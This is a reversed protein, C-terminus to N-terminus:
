RVLGRQRLYNAVLQDVPTETSTMVYNMGRRPNKTLAPSAQWGAPENALCAAAILLVAIWAISPHM